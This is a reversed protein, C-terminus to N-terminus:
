SSGAHAKAWAKARVLGPLEQGTTPGASGSGAVPALAAEVAAIACLVADIGASAVIGTLDAELNPANGKIKNAVDQELPLGDAAIIQGLDAKACTSFAGTMTTRQAATCAMVIVLPLLFLTFVAQFARPVSKM